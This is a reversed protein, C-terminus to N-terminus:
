NAGPFVWSSSTPAAREHNTCFKDPPRERSSDIHAGFFPLYAGEGSRPDRTGELLEFGIPADPDRAEDM